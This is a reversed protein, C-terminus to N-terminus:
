DSADHMVYEHDTISVRWNMGRRALSANIVDLPVADREYWVTTCFYNPARLYEAKIMEVILRRARYQVSDKGDGGRGYEIESDGWYPRGMHPRTSRRLWGNFELSHGALGGRGGRGDLQPAEGGMGGEVRVNTADGVGDDNVDMGPM